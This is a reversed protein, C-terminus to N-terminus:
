NWNQLTLLNIRNRIEKYVGEEHQWGSIYTLTVRQPKDVKDLIRKIKYIDFPDDYLSAGQFVYIDSVGKLMLENLERVIRNENNFSMRIQKENYGEELLGDKVKERFLIEQKVYQNNEMGEYYGSGRILIGVKNRKEDPIYGNIWEVCSVAIDDSNWLPMTAKVQIKYQQPNIQQVIRQIQNYDREETLMVPSVIIRGHGERMVKYLIEELYPEKYIYASYFKYQNEYYSNLRRQLAKNYHIDSTSTKEYILKQRFLNFPLALHKFIKLEETEKKILQPINYRSPEDQFVLIVALNQNEIYNTAINENEIKPKFLPLAMIVLSYGLVLGFILYKIAKRSNIKKIGYQLILFFLIWLAREILGNSILAILFLISIMMGM